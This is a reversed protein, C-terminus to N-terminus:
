LKAGLLVWGINCRSRSGCCSSGCCCCNGCGGDAAFTLCRFLLRTLGGGGFGLFAPGFHGFLFFLGGLFLEHGFGVRLSIGSGPCAAVGLVELSEIEGMRSDTMKELVMELVTEQLFPVLLLLRLDGLNDWCCAFAAFRALWSTVVSWHLFATANHM